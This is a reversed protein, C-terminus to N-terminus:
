SEDLFLHFSNVACILDYRHCNSNSFKSFSEVLKFNFGDLNKTKKKKKLLVLTENAYRSDVNKVRKMWVISKYLTYLKSEHYTLPHFLSANFTFNRLDNPLTARIYYCPSNTSRLSQAVVPLSICDNSGTVLLTIFLVTRSGKLM